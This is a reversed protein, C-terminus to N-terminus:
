FHALENIIQLSVIKFAIIGNQVRMPHYNENSIVDPWNIFQEGAKPM